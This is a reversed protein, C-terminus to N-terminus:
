RKNKRAHGNRARDREETIGASLSGAVSKDREATAHQYIMGARASGHGMCAMLDALSAGTGAALPNGTHRLDHFHFGPLGAAIVSASWRSANQFTSRRLVAGKAGTFVLAGTEASVFDRLHARVEARIAAPITVSRRGAASKPPGFILRGHLLRYAKATMTAKAGAAVLEAHWARVMGPTLDSLLVTSLTPEIYKRYLWRYLDVTRPQKLLHIDHATAAM